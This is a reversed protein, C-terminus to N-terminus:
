MIEDRTWRPLQEEYDKSDIRRMIHYAKSDLIHRVRRRCRARVGSFVIYTFSQTNSRRSIDVVCRQFINRVLQGYTCMLVGYYWRGRQTVGQEASRPPSALATHLFSTYPTLHYIECHFQFPNKNTVLISYIDWRFFNVHRKPSFSLCERSFKWKQWKKAMESHLDSRGNKQKNSGIGVLDRFDRNQHGGRGPKYYFTYFNNYLRRRIAM